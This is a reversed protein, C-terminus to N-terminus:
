LLWLNWELSLNFYFLFILDSFHKKKRKYSIFLLTVVANQTATCGLPMMMLMRTAAWFIARSHQIHLHEQWRWQARYLVIPLMKLEEEWEKRGERGCIRIGRPRKRVLNGKGKQLRQARVPAGQLSVLIERLLLQTKMACRITCFRLRAILFSTVSVCVQFLPIWHFCRCFAM